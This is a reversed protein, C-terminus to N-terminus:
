NSTKLALGTRMMASRTRRQGIGRESLAQGCRRQTLETEGNERCWDVYTRYLWTAGIEAGQSLECREDLFTGILDMDGRYEKTAM